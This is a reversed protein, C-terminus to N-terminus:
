ASQLLSPVLACTWEMLDNYGLRFLIILLLLVGGDFAIHVHFPMSVPSWFSRIRMPVLASCGMTFCKWIDQLLMVTFLLIAGGALLVFVALRVQM